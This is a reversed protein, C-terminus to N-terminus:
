TKDAKKPKYCLFLSAATVAILVLEFVGAIVAFIIASKCTYVTTFGDGETAVLQFANIEDSYFPMQIAEEFNKNIFAIEEEYEQDTEALTFFVYGNKYYYRSKLEEDFNTNRIVMTSDSYFKMTGEFTEGEYVTENQYDMGYSIPRALMYAYFGISIITITLLIIATKKCSLINKM